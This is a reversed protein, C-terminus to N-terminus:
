THIVNSKKSDDLSSFKGLFLCQNEVKGSSYCEKPLVMKESVNQSSFFISRAM